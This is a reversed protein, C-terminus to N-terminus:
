DPLGKLVQECDPCRRIDRKPHGEWKAWHKAHRFFQDILPDALQKFLISLFQRLLFNIIAALSIGALLKLIDKPM